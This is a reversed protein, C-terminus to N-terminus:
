KRHFTQDLEDLADQFQSLPKLAIQSQRVATQEPAVHAGCPRAPPSVALAGSHLAPAPLASLHASGRKSRRAQHALDANYPRCKPKSGTSTQVTQQARKRSPPLSM